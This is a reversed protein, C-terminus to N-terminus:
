RKKRKSTPAPKAGPPIVLISAQGPLPLLKAQEDNVEIPRPHGPLERYRRRRPPTREEEQPPKM